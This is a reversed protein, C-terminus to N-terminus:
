SQLKRRGFNWIELCGGLGLVFSAYLLVCSQLRAGALAFCHVGTTLRFVLSAVRM